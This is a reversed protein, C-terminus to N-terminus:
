QRLKAKPGTHRPRDITAFLAIPHDIAMEHHPSEIFSSDVGDPRGPATLDSQMASAIQRLPASKELRHLESLGEAEVCRCCAAEKERLHFFLRAGSLLN